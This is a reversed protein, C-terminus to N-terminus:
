QYKGRGQAYEKVMRQHLRQATHENHCWMWDPRLQISVSAPRAEVVFPMPRPEARPLWVGIWWTEIVAPGSPTTQVLSYERDGFLEHWLRWDIEQGARDVYRLGM